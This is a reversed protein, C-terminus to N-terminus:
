PPPPRRTESPLRVAGREEVQRKADAAVAELSDPPLLQRCTELDQPSLTDDDELARGAGPTGQGNWSFANRFRPPGPLCDDKYLPPWGSDHLGFAITKDFHLPQGNPTPPLPPLARVADRARQELEPSTAWLTELRHLRGDAAVEVRFRVLGLGQGAVATGMLSRVHEGWHHRYRKANKLTYTSALAWDQASPPPPASRSLASAPVPAPAPTVAVHPVPLTEAPPPAPALAPLPPLTPTQAAPQPPPAPPAPPTILLVQPPDLPGPTRVPEGNLVLGWLAALHATVVAALVWGLASTNRMPTARRM